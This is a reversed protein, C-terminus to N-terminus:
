DMLISGMQLWRWVYMELKRLRILIVVTSINGLSLMLQIFCSIKV